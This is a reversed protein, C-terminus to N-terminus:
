RRVSLKIFELARLYHLGLAKGMYILWEPLPFRRNLEERREGCGCGGAKDRPLYKALWALGLRGVVWAVLDGFGFRSREPPLPELRCVARPMRSFASFPIRKECVPCFWAGDVEVLQCKKSM